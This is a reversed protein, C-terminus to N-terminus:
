NEFVKFRFEGLIKRINKDPKNLKINYNSFERRYPYRKRLQDFYKPDRMKM